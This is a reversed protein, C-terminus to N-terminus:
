SWSGGDFRVAVVHAIRDAAHEFEEAPCLPEYEPASHREPGSWVWFWWLAGDGDVPRCAVVQRLGPSLLRGLRDDAEPEGAPNRVVLSGCRQQSVNLGGATLVAALAEANKKGRDPAAIDAVVQEM